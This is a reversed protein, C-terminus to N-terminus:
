FVGPGGFSSGAEKIPESTMWLVMGDAGPDDPSHVRVEATLEVSNDTYPKPNALFGASNRANNTLRVYNTTVRATKGSLVWGALAKPDSPLIHISIFSYAKSKM